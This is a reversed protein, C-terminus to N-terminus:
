AIYRRTIKLNGEADARLKQSSRQIDEASTQTTGLVELMKALIQRVTSNDKTASAIMSIIAQVASSQDRVSDSIDGQLGDIQSVIQNINGIAEVAHGTETRIATIRRQIEDTAKNTEKALEKVENAVVAFGKGADGARAAEITANLALLNTQEAITTILKIVNNIDVSSDALKRMTGSTNMALEVAQAAVASAQTANSSIGEIGSEMQEVNTSIQLLVSRVNKAGSLINKAKENNGGANCSIIGGLDQLNDASEALQNAGSNISVFDSDFQAFLKGLKTGMRGLPDDQSHDRELENSLINLNGKGAASVSESLQLIRQQLEAESDVVIQAQALSEELEHVKAQSLELNRENKTQKDVERDREQQSQAVSDKLVEVSLCQSRFGDLASSLVGLEDTRQLHPIVVTTDDRQLQRAGQALQSVPKILQQRLFLWMLLGILTGSVVTSALVVRSGWSVTANQQEQLLLIQRLQLEQEPLALQAGLVTIQASVVDASVVYHTEARSVTIFVVLLISACALALAYTVKGGIGM